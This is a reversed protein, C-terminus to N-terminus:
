GDLAAPTPLRFAEARRWRWIGALASLVLGCLLVQVAPRPGYGFDLNATLVDFAHIRTALGYWAAEIGATALAAGFSILPLPWWHRRSARSTLRWIMEWAYIGAVFVAAGVDAKSQLFYHFLALAALPYVLRHLRKWNRGLKRTWGDTSTIALTLLGLFTCFGITLYFRLAIESAVKLLNFKQDIVYLSVHMGAYCAAAVGIMRRLPILRQWDLVVRLPTLALSTLLFYVTWDGTGHTLEMVPRGGLLGAAWLVALRLGPAMLVALTAARLPSFRGRRDQILSFMAHRM